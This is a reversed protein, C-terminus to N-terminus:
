HQDGCSLLIPPKLQITSSSNLPSLCCWLIRLELLYRISPSVCNANVRRATNDHLQIRPHTFFAQLVSQFLFDQIFLITTSQGFPFPTCTIQPHNSPPPPSVSFPPSPPPIPSTVKLYFNPWQTRIQPCAIRIIYITHTSSSRPACPISLQSSPLM